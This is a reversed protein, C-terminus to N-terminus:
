GEGGDGDFWRHLERMCAECLDSTGRIYYEGALDKDILMIGNANNCERKGIYPDYCAGCKDCKRVLM